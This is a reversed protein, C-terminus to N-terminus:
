GESLLFEMAAEANGGAAELASTAKEEPFGMELIQKLAPSREPAAAPTPAPAPVPPPPAPGGAGGSAGGLRALRAARMEEATTVQRKEGGPAGSAPGGLSQGEGAFLCHGQKFHGCGQVAELLAKSDEELSTRPFDGRVVFVQYGERMADSIHGRLDADTYHQPTKICSNLDFWERGLRRLAFWHERKNCIYGRENATNQLASKGTEGTLPELTYGMRELCVKIVQVNFFGDARANGYDMNQGGMLRAEERDLQQSVEGLALEDFIPGQLLNNLAHVACLSGIQKEHYIGGPGFKPLEAGNVGAEGDKMPTFDGMSVIPM